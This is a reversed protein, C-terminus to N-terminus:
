VPRNLWRLVPAGGQWEVLTLAGYAVELRFLAREPVELVAGVIARIPGGHAVALVGGGPHGAVIDGVAALARERVDAMSEGGPFRVSAPAAMWGAYAEPDAREAEALTLGEFAGFDVEALGALTRVEMGLLEAAPRATDVARRLPSAFVAEVHLGALGPALREAAERGAPSLAVDTRGCCRGAARADSAAHRVLYLRTGSL